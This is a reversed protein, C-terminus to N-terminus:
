ASRKRELADVCASFREAPITDWSAAGAWKLFRVEDAGVEEALAQLNAAQETTIPDPRGAAHGDDDRDGTRLNLAAKLAYRMAYESASGEAQSVNMRKSASERPVTFPTRESHGGTHRVICVVAFGEGQREEATPAGYTVSFGYQSLLPQITHMVQERDAYPVDHAGRRNPKITPCERQFAALAVAFERAAWEAREQRQTELLFRLNERGEAGMEVAAQLLQPTVMMAHTPSPETTVPLTEDTM